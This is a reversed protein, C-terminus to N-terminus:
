EERKNQPPHPLPPYAGRKALNNAEQSELRIVTDQPGEGIM